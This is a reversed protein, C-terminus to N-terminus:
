YGYVLMAADRAHNNTKHEWKTIQKFKDAPLKTIGARPSISAFHIEHDKLFDEWISCDRKISGAGQIAGPDKKGFWTLLRADEFRVFLDNGYQLHYELVKTMAEHIKLCIIELFRKEPKNWVAFGTNTGTDIGIIIKHNTIM